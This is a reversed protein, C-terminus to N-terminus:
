SRPRRPAFGPCGADRDVRVSVDFLPAQAAASGCRSASRSFSSRRLGTDRSAAEHAWSARAARTLLHARPLRRPPMPWSGAPALRHAASALPHAVPALRHAVVVPQGVVLALRQAAPAQRLDVLVRLVVSVQLEALVRRRDGSVRLAVLVRLEAPGQRRAVLVRHAVRVRLEAPARRRDGPVRHAVPVRLAVLGLQDARPCAAM